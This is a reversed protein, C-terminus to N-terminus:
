SFAMQAAPDANPAATTTPRTAPVAPVAPALTGLTTTAGGQPGALFTPAVTTATTVRTSAVTETKSTGSDRTLVGILAAAILVLVAVMGLMAWGRRRRRQEEPSAPTTARPRFFRRERKGPPLVVTGVDPAGGRVDWRPYADALAAFPDLEEADGPQEVDDGPAGAAADLEETQDPGGGVAAAAPEAAAPQAAAPEDPAPEAEDQPPVE